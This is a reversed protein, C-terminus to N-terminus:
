TPEAMPTSPTSLQMMRLLVEVQYRRAYLIRTHRHTWDRTELPLIEQPLLPADDTGEITMTARKHPIMCEDGVENWARVIVNFGDQEDDVDDEKRTTTFRISCALSDKKHQAARKPKRRRKAGDSAVEVVVQTEALTARRRREAAAYRAAEEAEQKNRNVCIPVALFIKKVNDRLHHQLFRAHHMQVFDLRKQQRDRDARYVDCVCVLPADRSPASATFGLEFAWVSMVWPVVKRGWVRLARVYEEPQCIPRSIIHPEALPPAGVEGTGKGELGAGKGEAGVGGGGGGGDGGYVFASEGDV